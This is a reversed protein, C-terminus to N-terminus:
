RMEQGCAADLGAVHHACGSKCLKSCLVHFSRDFHLDSDKM